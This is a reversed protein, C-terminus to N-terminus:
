SPIFYLQLRHQSFFIAITVAIGILTLVVGVFNAKLWRMQSKFEQRESELRAEAAIREKELRAETAIREKELKAETVLREKELRTETALREKELRAEAAIYAAEIRTETAKRDANVREEMLNREDKWSLEASSIRMNIHRMEALAVEFKVRSEEFRKFIDEYRKDKAKRDDEMRAEIEKRSREFFQLHQAEISEWLKFSRSKANTM